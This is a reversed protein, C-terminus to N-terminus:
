VLGVQEAIWDGLVEVGVKTNASTEFTVPLEEFYKTLETEFAKMHAETQKPKKKDTKTFAIGVPVRHVGCWELFELDIRQPPIAADILVFVIFLNESRLLYETIIGEFEERLKKSVKAYGYGPLDVLSITNEVDFFNILQTKGPKASTKAMDKKMTLANILSSKGVNSRGIFAFQPTTSDTIQEVHSYSRIFKAKTFIM